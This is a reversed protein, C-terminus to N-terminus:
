IREETASSREKDGYSVCNVPNVESDSSNNKFYSDLLEERIAKLIPRAAKRAAKVDNVGMRVWQSAITEVYPRDLRQDKYALIYEVLVNM